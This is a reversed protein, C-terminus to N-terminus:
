RLTVGLHNDIPQTKILRALDHFQRTVIAIEKLVEHLFSNWCEAYLRGGVYRFHCLLFPHWGDDLKKSSFHRVLHNAFIPLRIENYPVVYQRLDGIQVIKHRSHFYQELLSADNCQFEWM